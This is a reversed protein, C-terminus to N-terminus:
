RAKFKTARSERNPMNGVAATFTFIGAKSDTAITTSNPINGVATLAFPCATSEAFTALYPVNGVIATLAFSCASAKTNFPSADHVYGVTTKAFKCAVASSSTTGDLMNGVATLSFLGAIFETDKTAVDEVDSVRAYPHVGTYVKSSM